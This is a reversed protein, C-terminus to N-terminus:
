KETITEKIKTGFHRGGTEFCALVEDGKKLSVVSVPKGSPRVLRITEANQLILSVARKRRGAKVLLLPRKEVKSRGVVAVQTRCRYNVLLVETGVSLESLYVTKGGPLLTYAHVGGANIRFPRPAVYPNEVSESHVLFFASGTNGVLMGEGLVMNTCTDVCVRDGLGLERVETIKAPELNIRVAGSRVVKIIKTILLISDSKIVVGAVGRELIGLATKAFPLSEVVAMIASTRAILNELPIIKWDRGSVIVTKDRSLSLAKEEDAKGKIEVEVVKKGLKIEGDPAVTKLRGLRRVTASKGAPVIVADAGNELAALVKKKSWPRCDVWVQKM